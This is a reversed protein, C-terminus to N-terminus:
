SGPGRGSPRDSRPGGPGGPRGPGGPGGPGGRRGPGGGGWGGMDIGRAEMRARMQGWYAMMRKQRDPDGSEMRDKAEQRDRQPPQWRPRDPQTEPEDKHQERYAEMQKRFEQMEDIQRDLIHEREEKPANFYEDVSEDMRTRFVERGVQQLQRRQEETVDQSRMIEMMEAFSMKRMREATIKLAEKGEASDLKQKDLSLLAARMEDANGAALKAHLKNEARRDLWYRGGWVGGAGVALVALGIGMVKGWNRASDAM